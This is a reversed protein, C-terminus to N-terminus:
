NKIWFKDLLYKERRLKEVLQSCEHKLKSETLNDIIQNIYSDDRSPDYKVVDHMISKFIKGFLKDSIRYQFDMSSQWYLFKISTLFDKFCPELYQSDDSLDIPFGHSFVQDFYTKLIPYDCHYILGRLNIADVYSLYGTKIIFVDQHSIIYDIYAILEHTMSYKIKDLPSYVYMNSYDPILAAEAMINYKKLFLYIRDLLDLKLVYGFNKTIIEIDFIIYGNTICEILLDIVSEFNANKYIDNTTLELTYGNEYVYKVIKFVKKNSDTNSFMIMQKIFDLYKNYDINILYMSYKCLIEVSADFPFFGFFSIDDLFLKGNLILELIVDNYKLDDLLIDLGYDTNSDLILPLEILNLIQIAKDYTNACILMQVIIEKKNDTIKNAYNQYFEIAADNDFNYYTALIDKIQIVDPLTKNNEINDAILSIVHCLSKSSIKKFTRESFMIAYKDLSDFIVDTTDLNDSIHNIVKFTIYRRLNEKINKNDHLYNVCNIITKLQYLIPPFNLSTYKNNCNQILQAFIDFDEEIFFHNLIDIYNPENESILAANEITIDAIDIESKKHIKLKLRNALNLFDNYDDDTDGYM